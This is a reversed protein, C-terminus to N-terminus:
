FQGTRLLVLTCAEEVQIGKQILTKELQENESGPNFIVRKPNLQIIEQVLHTSIQPNVYISLTDIKLGLAILAALDPYVKHGLIESEKPHVPLPNHGFEQLMKIAKHYYRTEDRSAGLVVVNM